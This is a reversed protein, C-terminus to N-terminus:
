SCKICTVIELFQTAKLSAGGVLGGDIEPMQFLGEATKENVSGGYLISLSQEDGPSLTAVMDRISAHINAADTPTATKGTGIAWVPEYAILADKFDLGLDTVARIQAELVSLTQGAERESETEGVCLVPIMGHEKARHFKKAVTKEDEHFLQRRESHGVLVMSCGHEKLMAASLEGTYAGEEETAVTQAGWIIPTDKLQAQVQSLYVAPPFVVVKADTDAPYGAKLEALLADISAKSGNMKWNGMVWQQRM